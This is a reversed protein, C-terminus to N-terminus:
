DFYKELPDHKDWPRPGSHSEKLKASEPRTRSSPCLRLRAALSAMLRTEERGLKLAPHPQDNLVLGDRAIAADAALKREQAVVYAQLLPLDAPRFADAPLSGVIDRWLQMAGPSLGVPPEPRKRTPALAVVQLSARSKRGKNTM